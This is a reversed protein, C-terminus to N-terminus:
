QFGVAVRELLWPASERRAPQACSGADLHARPAACDAGPKPARFVYMRLIMSQTEVFLILPGGDGGNSLPLLLLLLARVNAVTALKSGLAANGSSPRRAGAKRASVPKGARVLVRPFARPDGAQSRNNRM